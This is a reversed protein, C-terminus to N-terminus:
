EIVFRQVVKGNANQGQVLILGKVDAPLGIENKPNTFYCLQKGTVDFVSINEFQTNGFLLSNGKLIFVKESEIESIGLPGNKVTVQMSDVVQCGVQFYIMVNKDSGSSNTFSFATDGNLNLSKGVVGAPLTQNIYFKGPFNQHVRVTDGSGITVDGPHMVDQDFWTVSFNGASKNGDIQIKYRNGPITKLYLDETNNNSNCDASAVQTLLSHAQGGPGCFAQNAVGRDYAAIQGDFSLNSLRLISATGIADFFYWRTNDHVSDKWTTGVPEDCLATATCNSGNLAAGSNLKTADCVFDNGVTGFQNEQAVALVYAGPTAADIQIDYYSNGNPEKGGFPPMQFNVSTVPGCQTGSYKLKQTTPGLTPQPKSCQNYYFDLSQENLDDYIRLTPKNIKAGSNCYDPSIAVTINRGPATVVVNWHTNGAGPSQESNQLNAGTNNNKLNYPVAPYSGEKCLDNHIQASAYVVSFSLFVALLYNTRM